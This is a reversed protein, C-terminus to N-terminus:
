TRAPARRIRESDRRRRESERRALEEDFVSDLFTKLESEPTETCARARADDRRKICRPCTREGGCSSPFSNNCDLCVRLRQNSLRKWSTRARERHNRM